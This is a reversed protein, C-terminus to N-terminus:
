ENQDENESIGKIYSWSGDNFNFEARLSKINKWEGKAILFPNVTYTARYKTKFFIGADVCKKIYKDIMNMKIKLENAIEEKVAKTLIIQMQKDENNAYTIYRSFAIIIDVSIGKIKKFTLMTDLYLKIFDPEKQSTKVIETQQELIEGSITDIIQSVKEYVIKEKKEM